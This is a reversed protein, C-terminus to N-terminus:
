ELGYWEQITKHFAWIEEADHEEDYKNWIVFVNDKFHRDMYAYTYFRVM